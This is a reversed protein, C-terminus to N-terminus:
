PGIKYFLFGSLITRIQNEFKNETKEFMLVIKFCMFTFVLLRHQSEFERGRPSSDRGMVVLSPIGAM